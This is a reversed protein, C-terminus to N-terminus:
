EKYALFEEFEDKFDDTTSITVEKNIFCLRSVFHTCAYACGFDTCSFAFVPSCSWFRWWKKQTADAWNPIWIEGNNALKNAAKVIIVLKSYALDHGTIEVKVKKHYTIVDQDFAGLYAIATELSDIKKPLKDDGVYKLVMERDTSLKEDKVYGEPFPIRINELNEMIINELNEM